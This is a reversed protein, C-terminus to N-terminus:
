RPPAGGHPKATSGTLSPGACHVLLGDSSVPVTRPVALVNCTQRTPIQTVAQSRIYTNKNHLHSKVWPVAMRLTVCKGRFCGTNIHM